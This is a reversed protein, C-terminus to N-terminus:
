HDAYEWRAHRNLQAAVADWDPGSAQECLRSIAAHITAYDYRPVILHGHAPLPETLNAALWAPTCVLFDFTDAAEDGVTGILAQILVRFNQPDPPRDSQPDPLDPSHLMKLDARLSM